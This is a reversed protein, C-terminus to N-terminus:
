KKEKYSKKMEDLKRLYDEYKLRSRFNRKRIADVTDEGEELPIKRGIRQQFDILKIERINRGWEGM